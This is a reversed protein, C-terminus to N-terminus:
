SSLFGSKRQEKIGELSVEQASVYKGCVSYIHLRGAKGLLGRCMRRKHQTGPMREAKTLTETVLSDRTCIVLGSQECLVSCLSVLTRIGERHLCLLMEASDELAVLFALLLLPVGALAKRM